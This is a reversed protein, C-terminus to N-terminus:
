EDLVDEFISLLNLPSFKRLHNEGISIKPINNRIFEADEMTFTSLCFYNEGTISQIESNFLNTILYKNYFVAELARLTFGVSNNQGIELIGKSKGIYYLNKEYPMDDIYYIGAVNRKQNEPCNTLFFKCSLGFRLFLDFADYIISLRDKTAGLFYVDFDTDTSNLLSMGPYFSLINHHYKIRFRESELMDFTYIHDFFIGIQLFSLSTVNLSVSVLDQFFCFFYSRKYKRKLFDIVGYECLNVHTGFFTFVMVEDRMAPFYLKNLYWVKKFPLKFLTNLRNSHHVKYIFKLLRSKPIFNNIFIVNDHISFDRYVIDSFGSTTGIVVHKYKLDFKM